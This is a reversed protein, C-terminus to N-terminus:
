TRNLNPKSRNKPFNKAIKEFNDMRLSRSGREFDALTSRGIAARKELDSRSWGLLERAAKCQKYSIIM